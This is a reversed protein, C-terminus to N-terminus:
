FVREAFDGLSRLKISVTESQKCLLYHRSVDFMCGCLRSVKHLPNYLGAGGESTEM